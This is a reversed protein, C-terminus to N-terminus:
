DIEVIFGNATAWETLALQESATMDDSCNVRISNDSRSNDQYKGIATFQAIIAATDRAANANSFTAKM